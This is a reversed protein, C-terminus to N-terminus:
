RSASRSQRRSATARAPTPASTSSSSRRAEGAARRHWHSPAPTIPQGSRPSVPRTPITVTRPQAKQVYNYTAFAFVGGVTIAMVLVMFIRTRIM